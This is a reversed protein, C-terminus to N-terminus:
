NKVKNNSLYQKYEDLVEDFIDKLDEVQYDFDSKGMWHAVSELLGIAKEKNNM